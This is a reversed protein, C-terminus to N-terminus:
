NGKKKSTLEIDSFDTTIRLVYNENELFFNVTYGSEGLSEYETHTLKIFCNLNQEEWNNFIAGKIILSRALNKDIKEVLNKLDRRELKEIRQKLDMTNEWILDNQKDFM